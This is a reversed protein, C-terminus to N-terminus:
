KWRIWRRSTSVVTVPVSVMNPIPSQTEDVSSIEGSTTYKTTTGSVMNPITSQAGNMRGSTTLQNIENVPPYGGRNNPRPLSTPQPARNPPRITFPNLKFLTYVNESKVSSRSTEQTLPITDNKSMKRLKQLSVCTSILILVISIGIVQTVIHKIKIVGSNSNNIDDKKINPSVLANKHRPVLLHPQYVTSGASSQSHLDVDSWSGSLAVQRRQGNENSPTVIVNHKISSDPVPTTLWPLNFNNNTLYLNEQGETESVNDIRNLEEYINM